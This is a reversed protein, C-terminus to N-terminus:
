AVEAALEIAIPDAVLVVKEVTDPNTRIPDSADDLLIQDEVDHDLRESPRRPNLGERTGAGALNAGPLAHTRIRKNAADHCFLDPFLM